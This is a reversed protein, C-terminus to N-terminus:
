TPNDNEVGDAGFHCHEGILMCHSGRKAAEWIRLSRKGVIVFYLYDGDFIDDRLKRKWDRQDVDSPTPHDEPHTHWEGLYVCTGGSERWRRDIIAQHRRRARYFGYRRRIDGPEPVTVEDVVIDTSDVIHRGLLLGGAENKNPTDQVFYFLRTLAYTGIELKGGDAKTFIPPRM